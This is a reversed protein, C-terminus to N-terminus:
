VVSGDPHPDDVAYESARHPTPQQRRAYVPPLVTSKRVKTNTYLYLGGRVPRGREGELGCSIHSVSECRRAQDCECVPRRALRDLM